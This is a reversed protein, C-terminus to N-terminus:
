PMVKPRGGQAADSRDTGAESAGRRQAAEEFARRQQAADSRGQAADSRDTGETPVGGELTGSNPAAEATAEVEVAPAQIARDSADDNSDGCGVAYLAITAAGIALM